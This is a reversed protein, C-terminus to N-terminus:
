RVVVKQSPFLYSPVYVGTKLWISYQKSELSKDAWQRQPTFLDALATYPWPMGAGANYLATRENATLLRSWVAISDINANVGAFIPSSYFKAGVSTDRVDVVASDTGAVNNVTISAKRSATSYRGCTLYWTNASTGTKVANQLASSDGVFMSQTGDVGYIAFVTSATWTAYLSIVPTHYVGSVTPSLSWGCAEVDALEFGLSGASVFSTPGTTSIVASLGMGNEVLGATRGPANVATLDCASSSTVNVKNTWTPYTTGNVKVEIPNPSTGDNISTDVVYPSASATAASTYFVSGNKLYTVTGDSAVNIKFVDGAAYVNGDSGTGFKPLNSEYVIFNKGVSNPEFYIGYEIEAVGQDSDVDNLGYVSYHGTDAPLYFEVYQGRSVTQASSAGANYAAGGISKALVQDAYCASRSDVARTGSEEGMDWCATPTPLGSSAVAACSMGKGSNYLTTIQDASLGQPFLMGTSVINDGPITLGDTTTGFAIGTAKDPKASCVSGTEAGGNSSVYLTGGAGGVAPNYRMTLMYRGGAVMGTVASISCKPTGGGTHARGYVQAADRYFDWGGVAGTKGTAIFKTGAAVSPPSYWYAVTFPSTFDVKLPEASTNVVYKPGAAETLLAYSGAGGGVGPSNVATLDCASAQSVNVLNTWTPSPALGATGNIAAVLSQGANSNLSMDVVYRAGAAVTVASTYRLTGNQTYTVAGNADISIRLRDNVASTLDGGKQVGLEFTRLAVGGVLPSYWGFNVTTYNQDSDTLSLGMLREGTLSTPILFEVYDGRGVTEVSSAGAAWSGGGTRNFFTVAKCSGATVYRTGSLENLSWNAVLGDQL